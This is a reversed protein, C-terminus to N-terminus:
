RKELEIRRFAPPYPAIGSHARVAPSPPPPAGM